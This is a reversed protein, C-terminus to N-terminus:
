KSQKEYNESISKALNDLSNEQSINLGQDSMLQYDKDNVNILDLLRLSLENSDINDLFLKSDIIGFLNKNNTLIPTGCAMSEFIIKDYMGSSSLNIAWQHSRYFDATKYHPVGSCVSIKGNLEPTKSIAIIKKYYNVDRPLFDGVLTASFDNDRIKCLAELFILQNKVPAIRGLFLFSNKVKAVNKDPSFLDIDVGVPMIINKKFKATYSFRSTCFIMDSFWVALNTLISGAHHNRWLGIKKGLLKWLIGGLLVYEQNMHVFIADYNGREQWIYKYFYFIYKIRSEGSEKGLSLIRINEDLNHEGKELCIVTVSSFHEALKEVWRVFFGLVSDNKNIKQTIILIRM